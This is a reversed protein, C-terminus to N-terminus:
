YLLMLSCIVWLAVSQLLGYNCQYERWKYIVMQMNIQDEFTFYVTKVM